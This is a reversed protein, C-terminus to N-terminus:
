LICTCNHFVIILQQETRRKAGVCGLCLCVGWLCAVALVFLRSFFKRCVETTSGPCPLNKWDLYIGSVSSFHANACVFWLLAVVRFKVLHLEMMTTKKTIRSLLLVLSSSYHSTTGREFLSGYRSVHKFLVRPGQGALIASLASWIMSEPHIYPYGSRHESQFSNQSFSM